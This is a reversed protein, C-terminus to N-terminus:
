FPMYGDIIDSLAGKNSRSSNQIVDHLKYLLQFDDKVFELSERFTQENYPQHSRPASEIFSELTARADTESYVNVTPKPGQRPIRTELANVRDMLNAVLQDKPDGSKSIQITGLAQTFPNSVEYDASLVHGMEDSMNRCLDNMSSYDSLEYFHTMHPATDFPLRTGSQAIHIIPKRLSHRVGMEYLVNPNLGTMDAVCIEAESLARFINTGIMSSGLMLDARDARLENEEAAPEIVYHFVWDARQREPSGPDGIPTVFFCRKTIEGGLRKAM